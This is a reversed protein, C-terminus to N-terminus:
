HVLTARFHEFTQTLTMGAAACDAVDLLSVTLISTSGNAVWARLMKRVRNAQPRTRYFVKRGDTPLKVGFLARSTQYTKQYAIHKSRDRPGGSTAARIGDRSLPYQAVPAQGLQLNRYIGDPAVYPVPPKATPPIPMIPRGKITGAQTRCAAQFRIANLARFTTSDLHQHLQVM